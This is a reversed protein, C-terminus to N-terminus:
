PAIHSHPKASVLFLPHHGKPHSLTLQVDDDDVGKIGEWPRHDMLGQPFLFIDPADQAVKDSLNNIHVKSIPAYLCSM